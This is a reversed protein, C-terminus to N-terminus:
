GPARVEWRLREADLVAPLVGAAAPPSLVVRAAMTRAAAVAEVNMVNLSPHRAAVAAMEPVLRRPDPLGIDDTLQLMAAIVRSQDGADLEAIPGSLKGAGGVVAARCARYWWYTTTAIPARSRGLM